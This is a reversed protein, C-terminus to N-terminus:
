MRRVFAWSHEPSMCQGGPREPSFNGAFCTQERNVIANPYRIIFCIWAVAGPLGSIWFIIPPERGHHANHFYEISGYHQGYLVSVALDNEHALADAEALGDALGQGRLFGVPYEHQPVPLGVAIDELQRGLDIPPHKLDGPPHHFVGPGPILHLQHIM